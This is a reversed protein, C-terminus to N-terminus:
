AVEVRDVLGALMIHLNETIKQKLIPGLLEEILAIGVDYELECVIRTEGQETVVEWHGRFLDFDGDVCDFEIRLEEPVITDRETWVLPAGELETQWHTVRSGPSQEVIDVRVVNPMYRSYSEVDLVFDFLERPTQGVVTKHVRITDSM